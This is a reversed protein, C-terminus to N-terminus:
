GYIRNIKEKEIKVYAAIQNVRDSFGTNMYSEHTFKVCREFDLVSKWGLYQSAKSIDLRLSHAEHPSNEPKEHVFISEALGAVKILESILVEVSYSKESPGFNWASGYRFGELYLKETLKLYGFLPELVFQWPRTALPNRVSIKQKNLLARYFDPVIRNEAWDGGGIVNGARASAVACSSDKKFFSKIYSQTVLETCGKSASYPDDGGMSDNERYGWVWENNQYCKDSSIVVAAKVSKSKRVAELFNVTGQVNVEFTYDPNKYSELVLPQAAM